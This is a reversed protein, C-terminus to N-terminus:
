RGQSVPQDRACRWIQSVSEWYKGEGEGAFSVRAYLLGTRAPSPVRQLAHESNPSLEDVRSDIETRTSAM